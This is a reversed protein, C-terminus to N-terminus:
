VSRDTSVRQGQRLLCKPLVDVFQPLDHLSLSLTDVAHYSLQLWIKRGTMRVLWVVFSLIIM